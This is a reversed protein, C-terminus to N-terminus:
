FVWRVGATTRLDSSGVDSAVIILRVQAGIAVRPTLFVDAGGVGQFTFSGNSFTQEFAQCGPVGAACGIPTQRFRRRLVLAGGGGGGFLDVRGVRGGGLVNVQGVGYAHNTETEIRIGGPQGPLSVDTFTGRETHRWESFAAEIRIPGRRVRVAADWAFARFGLDGHFPEATGVGVGVSVGRESDGSTGQAAAMGTGALLAVAVGVVRAAALRRPHTMQRM